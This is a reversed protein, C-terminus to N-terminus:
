VPPQDANRVGGGNKELAELLGYMLIGAAVAANLSEARGRMPLSVRRDALAAVTEGVGSGESGIVLAFRERLGRAAERYPVGDLEASLVAFGAAGLEALAGALCGRWLPLRLVSGMSARVTKPAFADACAASLLVGSFGAAEATRLMVGVNGPDQVGDLALLAGRAQSLDLPAPFRVAAAIGQPTKAECVSNVVHAPAILVTQATEMLPAYRAQKEEDVLLTTVVADRLAEACLKAGEVLFCGSEARGKQGHLARLERVRPNHVSTVTLM